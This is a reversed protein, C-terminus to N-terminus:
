RSHVAREYREVAGEAAADDMEEISVPPGSYKVIGRAAEIPVVPLITLHGHHDFFFKVRDGPGIKLAERAQKPITIQGKSTLTSEM